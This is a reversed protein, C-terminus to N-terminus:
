AGYMVEVSYSRLTVTDTDVGLQVTLLITVDASTDVTSTVAVGSSGGFGSIGASGGVQSAQDNQNYANVM